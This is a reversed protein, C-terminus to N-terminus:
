RPNVGLRELTGHQKLWGLVKPTVMALNARREALANIFEGVEDDGIEAAREAQLADFDALLARVAPLLEIVSGSNAAATGKRGCDALRGGLNNSANMSTLLEGVGILPQFRDASFARWRDRILLELAGLAKKLTDEYDFVAIRLEEADEANELSAGVAAACERMGQLVARQDPTKGFDVIRSLELLATIRAIQRDATRLADVAQRLREGLRRRVVADPLRELLAEADELVDSM